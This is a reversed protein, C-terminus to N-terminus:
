VLGAHHENKPVFRVHVGLLHTTTTTTLNSTFQAINHAALIHLSLSLSICHMFAYNCYVYSSLKLITAPLTHTKPILNCSLNWSKRVTWSDVQMKHKTPARTNQYFPLCTGVFLWTCCMHKKTTSIKMLTTSMIPQIM